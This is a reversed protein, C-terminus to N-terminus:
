EKNESVKITSVTAIACIGAELKRRIPLQAQDIACIMLEYLARCPAHFFPYPLQLQYPSRQKKGCGEGGLQWLFLINIETSSM